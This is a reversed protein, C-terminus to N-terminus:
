QGRRQFQEELRKLVHALFAALHEKDLPLAGPTMRVTRSGLPYEGIDLLAADTPSRLRVRIVLDRHWQTAKEWRSVSLAPGNSWDGAAIAEISQLIRRGDDYLASLREAERRQEILPRDIGLLLSVVLAGLVGMVIVAGLPDAKEVERVIGAGLIVFALAIGLTRVRKANRESVRARAWDTYLWEDVTWWAGIAFLANTLAPIV